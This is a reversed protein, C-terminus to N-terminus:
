EKRRQGSTGTTSTGSTSTGSTSTGSTSTGSGGSSGGSTGSGSTGDGASRQTNGSTSTGSGAASSGSTSTGSAASSGSPAAGTGMASAGIGSLGSSTGSMSGSQSSGYRSEERRVRIRNDIDQVGPAADVLDEITHKMRRSPVTGELIVQGAKVNVEVESTDIDDAMMLRECIDEKLREDSRTYGKPGRFHQQQSGSQGSWRDEGGGRSSSRWDRDSSFTDRALSGYNRRRTRQDFGGTPAAGGDGYYGTGFYGPQETRDAFPGEGFGREEGYRTEVGVGYRSRGSWDQSGRRSPWERQGAEYGFGAGGPGFGGIPERQGQESSYQSESYRSGEDGGYRRYDNEYESRYSGSRSYDGPTNYPERQGFRGAGYREGFGRDRDRRWDEQWRSQDRNQDRGQGRYEDRREERDQGRGQGRYEDRREERDMDRRQSRGQGPYYGYPNGSYPQEDPGGATRGSHEGEEFGYNGPYFSERSGQREERGRGRWEDRDDESRRGKWFREDYRNM